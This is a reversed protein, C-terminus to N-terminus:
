LRVFQELGPAANKFEELMQERMVEVALVRVLEMAEVGRNAEGVVWMKRTERLNAFLRSFRVGALFQRGCWLNAPPLFGFGGTQAILGVLAYSSSVAIRENPVIGASSLIRNAQIQDSSEKNYCIYPRSIAWRRLEEVSDLISANRSTVLLFEEEYASQQSWKDGDIQPGACVIVDLKGDRLREVLPGTLDSYVVLNAVKKYLQALLWPSTTATVSEGLGLRLEQMSLTESCVRARLRRIEELLQTGGQLLRRGAPTLRLPRADRYLLEVGLERELGSLSQSVASPTVGLKEAAKRVTKQEVVAMFSQLGKLDLGLETMM